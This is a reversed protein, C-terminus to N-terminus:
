SIKSKLRQLFKKVPKIPLLMDVERAYKLYPEGLRRASSKEEELLRLIQMPVNVIVAMLLAIAANAVLPISLVELMIGLYIPHRIYKYAGLRILRVRKIKQAGVAHIAWQKGLSKMGWWRLRFAAFYLLLGLVSVSWRFTGPMLFFEFITIFCLALYAVTVMALTWDGHFEFPKREKSTYFTEWVREFAHFLMFVLFFIQQPAHLSSVFLIAVSVPVGINGLLVFAKIPTVHKSV